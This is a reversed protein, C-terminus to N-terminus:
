PRSAAVNAAPEGATHPNRWVDVLLGGALFALLLAVAATAPISSDPNGPRPQGLQFFFDVAPTLLIVTPAAVLAFRIGGLTNSSGPDWNLAIAAALAPLTFLYSFGPAAFATLLGLLVWALVFGFPHASRKDSMRGSLWMGLAAGCGLLCLLYLYGEFVSPTSRLSTVLLWTLTAGFTAALTVFLAVGARRALSGASIAGAHRGKAVALVLLAAAVVAAAISWGSAYQIFIPRLTFYVSDGAEPTAALDLNGFHRALGLANSGHHQLSNWNVSEINDAPLHYVPSGRLYVVHVGPVGADHFPDFDTGVDGIHAVTEGIFSFATPNSVAAAFQQVMWTESGSTEVVLSPGSTGLAELNMVLAIDDAAPNDNVFATSGYRPGPEEGDTFLLLVDNQLPAGARLARATELLAGVAASNDNAGPTPPDTDYHAVLAIAGTNDTGPIRAVLNIVEVSSGGGGFYDPASVVQPESELGLAGLESLLYERVEVIAESGMPHPARAIAEVHDFARAASFDGEPADAPVAGPPVVSYFGVVVFGAVVIWPVARM